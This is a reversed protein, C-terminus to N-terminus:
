DLSLVFACALGADATYFKSDKIASIIKSYSSSPPVNDDEPYVYVKFPRGTCKSFDFCREMTCLSPDLPDEGIKSHSPELSAINNISFMSDRIYSKKRETM